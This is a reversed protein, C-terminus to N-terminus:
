SGETQRQIGFAKNGNLTFAGFVHVDNGWAVSEYGLRILDRVIRRIVSIYLATQFVGDLVVAAQSFCVRLGRGM